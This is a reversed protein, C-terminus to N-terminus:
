IDMNLESGLIEALDQMTKLREKALQKGKSTVMYSAIESALPLFEVLKTHFDGLNNGPEIRIGNLVYQLLGIVGLKHIKDAEWLVQAEISELPKKLTLGVHKEISDCVRDIMKSDFEREQLWNRAYESSAVGHNLIKEEGLGPKAFDHFWAALTVIELDANADVALLKALHVVQQVHDGRYDYLPKEQAASADKWEDIAASATTSLVLARIIEETKQKM